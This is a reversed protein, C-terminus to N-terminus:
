LDRVSALEFNSVSCHLGYIKTVLLKKEWGVSKKNMRAWKERKKEVLFLGRENVEYPM